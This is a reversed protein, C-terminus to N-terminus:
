RSAAAEPGRVFEVVQAWERDSPHAVPDAHRMGPVVVLQAGPRAAQLRRAMELPFTEDREGHQILLPTRLLAVSRESDLVDPWLWAAWRPLRGQLVAVDRGSTFAGSVAVCDPPPRLHPADDLLVASGLSLGYACARADPALRARFDAWAALGDDRLNELTAPGDSNGFGSYDFVMATVGADHLVKLALVWSSISEGNGHYVLLAPARPDQAPVFFGHLTRGGSELQVADYALGVSAPTRPGQKRVQIFSAAERVAARRGAAIGGGLLAVVAAAIALKRM